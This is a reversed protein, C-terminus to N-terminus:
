LSDEVFKTQEMRSYKAGYIQLSKLGSTAQNWATTVLTLKYKERIPTTSNEANFLSESNHYM